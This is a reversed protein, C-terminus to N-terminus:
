ESAKKVMHLADILTRQRMLLGSLSTVMESVHGETWMTSNYGHWQENTILAQLKAVEKAIKEMEYVLARKNMEATYELEEM